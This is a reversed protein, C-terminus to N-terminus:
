DVRPNYRYMESLKQEVILTSFENKLNIMFLLVKHLVFFHLRAQGECYIKLSLSNGNAPNRDTNQQEGYERRHM